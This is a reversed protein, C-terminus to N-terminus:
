ATHTEDVRPDREVIWVPRVCRDGAEACTALIQWALDEISPIGGNRRRFGGRGAAGMGANQGQWIELRVLSRKDRETKKPTDSLM